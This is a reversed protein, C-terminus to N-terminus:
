PSLGTAPTTPPSRGEILRTLNETKVSPRLWSFFKVPQVKVGPRFKRQTNQKKIAIEKPRQDAASGILSPLGFRGKMGATCTRIEMMTIGLSTACPGKM